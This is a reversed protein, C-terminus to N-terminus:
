ILLDIEEYQKQKKLLEVVGRRGENEYLDSMDKYKCDKAMNIYRIKNKLRGFDLLMYIRKTESENTDGDLVITVTSNANKYITQYLLSDRTLVKGLMSIGNQPFRIADFVGECLYIPADWNIKSEQFIIKKKDATCNKYKFKNIGTYDRGIYYNLEGFSDYSPIIIRNRMTFDEEGFQTSGINFKDIIDQTIKRKDLYAILRKDRCTKIDIKKFTKPLTVLTEEALFTETNGSFLNIDCMKSAFIDHLTRKYEAYLEENGYKKILKLVSGSMERDYSSCKWCNFVQKSLNVELNHKHQVRSGYKEVCRPCGFQLQTHEGDFGGNAEGLSCVLVSYMKKFEPPLM